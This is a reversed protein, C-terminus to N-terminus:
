PHVTPASTEVPDRGRLRPERYPSKGPWTYKYWAMFRDIKVVCKERKRENRKGHMSWSSANENGSEIKVHNRLFRPQGTLHWLGQRSGQKPENVDPELLVISTWSRVTDQGHSGRCHKRFRRSGIGDRLLERVPLHTNKRRMKRAECFYMWSVSSGGFFVAFDMTGLYSCLVFFFFFNSQNKQFIPVFERPM